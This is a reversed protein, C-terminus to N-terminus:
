KPPPMPGPGDPGGPGGPGGPKKDRNKKRIEDFNRKFEALKTKQEETLMPIMKEDYDHFCKGIGKFMQHRVEGIQQATEVAIPRLQETQQPTLSVIKDSHRIIDAATPTPRMSKKSGREYGVFYGAMTLSTLAILSAAIFQKKSLPKM